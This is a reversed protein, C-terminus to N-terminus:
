QASMGSMAGRFPTGCGEMHTKLEPTPDRVTQAFKMTVETVKAETDASNIENSVPEMMCACLNRVVPEMKGKWLPTSLIERTIVDISRIDGNRRLKEIYKQTMPDIIAQMCGNVSNEITAKKFLNLSAIDKASVNVAVACTALLLATSFARIYTNM